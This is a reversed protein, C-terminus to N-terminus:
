IGHKSLVFKDVKSPEADFPKDPDYETIEFRYSAFKLPDYNGYQEIYDEDLKKWDYAFEYIKYRLRILENTSLFKDLGRFSEFIIKPKWDGKGQYHEEGAPYTMFHESKYYPKPVSFI